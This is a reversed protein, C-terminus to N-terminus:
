HALGPQASPAVFTVLWAQLPGGSASAASTGGDPVHALLLAYGHRADWRVSLGATGQATGAPLRVGLDHVVGSTPDISHLALTGDDQRAFGYLTTQFRWVLGFNNIATGLRRPQAAALGAAELDAMFLGSQPASPRLAGFIGFLGGNSSAAAPAPGVFVLRDRATPETAPPWAVPAGVPVAAGSGLDAVDRFARGAQLELVCLSLLNNGGPGLAAHTVLALWRGSPDPVASNTLVEAPLRVLEDAGAQSDATGPLPISLLFVRARVPPGTQRTIALLQSGDPTWSLDVIHEPDAGSAPTGASPLEFIRRPPQHGDLSVVWVSEPLTKQPAANAAGSGASWGTATFKYFSGPRVYALQDGDPALVMSSATADLGPVDLRALQGTAPDLLWLSQGLGPAGTQGPLGVLLAVRGDRLFHADLISAGPYVPRIAVVDPHRRWLGVDVSASTDAVQVVREDDLADPHELRLAHQGPELWRDLPTEGLATGDIHVQAGAPSSNIHMLTGSSSTMASPQSQGVLIESSPLKGGAVMWGVVAA